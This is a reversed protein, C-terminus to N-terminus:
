DIDHFMGGVSASWVYHWDDAPDFLSQMTQSISITLMDGGALETDLKRVVWSLAEDVGEFNTKTLTLHREPNGVKTEDIM